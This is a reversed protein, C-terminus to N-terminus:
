KTAEIFLYLGHNRFLRKLLFRPWLRKAITLAVGGHRQGVAGNLLDGFSLQVATDVKSFASFLERAEKVTYAKTGPSELRHHYLDKLGRRARGALLGYRLWLMYGVLSYTHYIMIRAVGDTRLVRHIERVATQTDPTHHIVGWSYVIDFSKNPFPLNEADGLFVNSKLGYTDFRQKVHDVARPTLDVGTLSRPRSRAWEVHDAGMGVGIELVDKGNGEHFKGFELVYPELEYRARSQSDYIDQRSGGIAYVEGCSSREWFARVREKLRPEIMMLNKM